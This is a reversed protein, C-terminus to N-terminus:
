VKACQPKLSTNSPVLEEIGQFIKKKFCKKMLIKVWIKELGLFPGFVKLSQKLLFLFFFFLFLSVSSRLNQPKTM